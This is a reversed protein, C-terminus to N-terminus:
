YPIKKGKRVMAVEDKGLEHLVIASILVAEVAGKMWTNKKCATL